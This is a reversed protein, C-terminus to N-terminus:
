FGLCILLNTCPVWSVNIVFVSTGVDKAARQCTSISFAEHLSVRTLKAM